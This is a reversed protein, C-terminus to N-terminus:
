LTKVTKGLHAEAQKLEGTTNINLMQQDPFLATRAGMDAMIVHLAPLPKQRLAAALARHHEAPWLCVTPVPRAKSRAMAPGPALRSVWDAPLFPMDVPQLALLGCGTKMAHSLAASLGAAPSPPVGPDDPICNLGTGFDEAALLILGDVQPALCAIAIDVMRRGGLKAQPKNGGIRSGRGGALIAGLRKSM